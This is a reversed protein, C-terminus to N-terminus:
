PGAVQLGLPVDSCDERSPAGDTRWRYVMIRWEAPLPVPELEADIYDATAAPVGADTRWGFPEIIVLGSSHCAVVRAMSAPTSIVPRRLLPMTTFEPAWHGSRYLHNRQLILDLRDLYYLPKLHSYSILVAAEASLQQLTPTAAAWDSKGRYPKPSEATEPAPSLMRVLTPFAGNGLLAFGLIVIFAAAAAAKGLPRWALAPARELLSAVRQRLAPLAEAIAIGSLSFFMPMVYFLYRPNKWAAVSHLLFAIGFICACLTAARVNRHAALLVVLPFLAWLTAYNGLLEWHYYRLNGAHEQAWPDVHQFRRIAWPLLDATVILVAAVTVLAICGAGIWRRQPSAAARKWLAPGRDAGLWLLLGALGVLTTIQLHYALLFAGLMAIALALSNRGEAHPRTLRYAAITGVFFFLAHLSYFRSVQTIYIGFPYTCLLLAAVWGALRGGASRVWLYVVAVLAAGGLIAPIRAVILSEGFAWFFAAVLYTFLLTRTYPEGGRLELTGDNLLSQAALVHHLEDVDPGFTIDVLRLGLALLFLLAADSWAQPVTWGIRGVPRRISATAVAAAATRRPQEAGRETGPALTRLSSRGENM